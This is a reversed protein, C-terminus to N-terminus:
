TCTSESLERTQTWSQDFVVVECQQPASNAGTNLLLTLKYNAGAVVQTEAAVIQVLSVPGSNSNASIANTAFAAMEKVEADDVSIPSFGGALGTFGIQRKSIVASDVKMLASVVLVLVLASKVFLAM